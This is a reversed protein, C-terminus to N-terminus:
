IYTLFEKDKVSIYAKFLKVMIDQSQEGRAKLADLQSLVFANFKTIDTGSDAIWKDLSSLSERITNTTAISDIYYGRM